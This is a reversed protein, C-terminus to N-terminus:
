SRSILHYQHKLCDGHIDWRVPDNALHAEFLDRSYSEDAGADTVNVWLELCAPVTSRCNCHRSCALLFYLALALALCVLNTLVSFVTSFGPLVSLVLVSVCRCLCIRRSVPPSVVCLVIWALLRLLAFCDLDLILIVFRCIVSISM